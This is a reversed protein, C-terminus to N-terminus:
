DWFGEDVGPLDVLQQETMNVLVAYTRDDSPVLRVNDIPVVVHKDAIDLFGGIEAVVGTMQGNRDLIIDEIEGIDNWTEAVGDYMTSADWPEPDVMSYVNGGTIDRTRIMNERDMHQEALAPGATLALIAFTTTFKTM